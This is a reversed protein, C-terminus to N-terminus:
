NILNINWPFSNNPTSTIQYTVTDSSTFQGSFSQTQQIGKEFSYFGFTYYENIVGHIQLTFSNPPDTLGLWFAGPEPASQEAQFYYRSKSIEMLDANKVPDYGTKKGDPYIVLPKSPATVVIVVANYVKPSTDSKLTGSVDLYYYVGGAFAGLCGLVLIFELLKQLFRLMVGIHWLLHDIQVACPCAPM